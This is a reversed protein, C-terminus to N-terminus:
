SRYSLDTVTRESNGCRAWPIPQQSVQFQRRRGSRETTISWTELQTFWSRQILPWVIVTFRTKTRQLHVHRNQRNFNRILTTKSNAVYTYFLSDLKQCHIIYTAFILAVIRWIESITCSLVCTVIIWVHSTVYPSEIDCHNFKSVRQRSCFHLM